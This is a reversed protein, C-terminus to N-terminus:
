AGRGGTRRAADADTIGAGKTTDDTDPRTILDALRYPIPSDVTFTAIVDPQNECKLTAEKLERVHM